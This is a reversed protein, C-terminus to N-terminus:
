DWSHARAGKHSRESSERWVYYVKKTGKRFQYCIEAPSRLTILNIPTRLPAPTRLVKVICKKVLQVKCAMRGPLLPIQDLPKGSLTYGEGTEQVKLPLPKDQQYLRIFHKQAHSTFGGRDRSHNMHEVCKNWDRGYLELAELFLKEEEESWRGTKRRPDDHIKKPKVKRESKRKKPKKPKPATKKGEEKRKRKKSGGYGGFYDDDDDYAGGWAAQQEYDQALMQAILASTADDADAM